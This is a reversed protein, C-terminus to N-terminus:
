ITFFGAIGYGPSGAAAATLHRALEIWGDDDLERRQEETTLGFQANARVCDVHSWEGYGSEPTSWGGPYRGEFATFRVAGVGLTALEADVRSLWDGKYPGHSVGFVSCFECIRHLAGAYDAGDGPSYPGGRLVTQLADARFAVGNEPYYIDDDVAFDDRYRDEILRRMKDDRSGIAGNMKELDVVYAHIFRGM